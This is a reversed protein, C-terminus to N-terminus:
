ETSFREIAELTLCVGDRFFDSDKGAREQGVQGSEQQEQRM